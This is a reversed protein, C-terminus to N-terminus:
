LHVAASNDRFTNVNILHSVAALSLSCPSRLVLVKNWKSFFSSCQPLRLIDLDNLVFSSQVLIYMPDLIHCIQVSFEATQLPAIKWLAWVQCKFHRDLAMTSITSIQFNQTRRSIQNFRWPYQTRLGSSPHFTSPQQNPQHSCCKPQQPPVVNSLKM